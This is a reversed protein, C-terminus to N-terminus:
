YVVKRDGAECFNDGHVLNPPSVKRQVSACFLGSAAPEPPPPQPTLRPAPWALQLHPTRVAALTAVTNGSEQWNNNVIDAANKEPIGDEILLRMAQNMLQLDAASFGSSNDLTFMGPM